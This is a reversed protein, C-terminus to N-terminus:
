ARALADIRRLEDDGLSFGWIGANEAIREPRASKPIAVVGHDIHWRLVVQAPTAGHAAAIEALAPHRLDTTALPSYGELVVGRERHAALVRADHLTPGWRIQNVAPTQGTAGTVEDLQRVSFNSVGVDRALGATRAELLARWAPVIARPPWHILWLDVHDTGLADLSAALARRERGADRPHVKTTVFVEERPVGSDLIARGVERENRYLTATDLHRYGAELAVRVAQYCTPGTMRWTGFGLMPMTGGGPLALTEQRGDLTM